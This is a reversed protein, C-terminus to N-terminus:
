DLEYVATVTVEERVRGPAVPVSSPADAFAGPPVDVPRSRGADSETLSVLRGLSRGVLRAHQEAKERADLHAASRAAARLPAADAVDFTVAHVRGADGAADMAAQLVAGTRSLDRVRVSFGQGAQYGTLRPNGNEYQHVPHLSLSETRVDRDEIGQARLADLLARAATSQADLAAKTTPATAEVGLSLFATDPTATAEGSGTVTVTAPAPAPRALGAAPAASLAVAPATGAVLLGGALATAALVRASTRRPAHPFVPM